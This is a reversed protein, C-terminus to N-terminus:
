QLLQQVEEDSMADLKLVIRREIEASLLRVIPAEFLTRLPLDVGLENSVRIIKETLQGRERLMVQGCALTLLPQIALM